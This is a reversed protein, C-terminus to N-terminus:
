FIEKNSHSTIFSGTSALFFSTKLLSIILVNDLESDAVMLEKFMNKSNFTLGKLCVSVLFMKLPLKIPFDIGVEFM